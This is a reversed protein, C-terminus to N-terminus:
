DSKLTAMPQSRAAQCAPVLCTLFATFLILSPVVLYTLPDTTSVEFLMGGLARNALLSAAIGLLVGCATLVMGKRVVERILDGARAGLAIKLGFERHRLRVYQALTGGIGTTALLMTLVAFIAILVASFRPGAVTEELLVRLPAADSVALESDLEAVTSSISSALAMPDGSTHVLVAFMETPTQAFPTYLAAPSDKALGHFKVDAVVGVVERTSRMFDLRVGLPDRDPFYRRAMTENIVAVRPADARDEPGFARGRLLEIGVTRFYGPTVARFSAEDEEGAATAQGEIKFRVAWGADVPHHGALAAHRVGPLSRIQPLLLEYFRIIHPWDPWSKGSVPYRTSPLQLDVKLTGDPRFGPDVQQLHWFSRALLSAALVLVLSLAVQLVVLIQRLRESSRSGVVGASSDQLVARLDARSIRLAPGTGSLLGTALALVLTAGVLRSDVSVQELLPFGPPALPVVFEIAIWAVLLGVGAAPATVMLNEILLQRFIQRRDAGLASRLGIEAARRGTRILILASVNACAILVVVAMAAQLLLLLRRVDGVTEEALPVLTVSRGRLESHEDVLQQAVAAMDAKARKLSIGDRLRAVVTLFNAQRRASTSDYRLPLWVETERDPYDFGAPMIGIVEYDEGELRLREGTCDPDGGYHRRWFAEGILVVGAADPRDEQASFSRGVIPQIGLIQFGQHSISATHLRKPEIGPGSLTRPQRYWALMQDFVRNRELFDFYNPVSVPDKAIDRPLDTEWVVVLRDADPYPLPALLVKDIVSFTTSNAGIALSLILVVLVVHGPNKRLSRSSHLLDQWLAAM